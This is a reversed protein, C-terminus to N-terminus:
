RTKESNSTLTAQRNLNDLRQQADKAFASKPFGKLLQKYLKIAQQNNNLHEQCKGAQMLAASRWHSYSYLSDVKYYARIAEVHNEQHFYTEAIRWQAIAATETARGAKSKIVKEYATRADSLKGEDELGRGIVYDFEYATPFDAFKSKASTAVEAAKSWENLQGFCQADRLM